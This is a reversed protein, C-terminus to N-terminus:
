VYVEYSSAHPDITKWYVTEKKLHRCICELFAFARTCTITIGPLENNEADQLIAHLDNVLTVQKIVAHPRLHLIIFEEEKSPVLTPAFAGLCMRIDSPLEQVKTARNIFTSSLQQLTENIPIIAM